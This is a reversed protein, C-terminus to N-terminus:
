GNYPTGGYVPRLDAGTKNGTVISPGAPASTNNVTRRKQDASLPKCQHRRRRDGRERAAGGFVKRQPRLFEAFGAGGERGLGGPDPQEVAVPNLAAFYQFAEFSGADVKEQVIDPRDAKFDGDVQIVTAARIERVPCQILVRTGSGVDVHNHLLIPRPDAPRTIGILLDRQFPGAVAIPHDEFKELVGDLQPVHM